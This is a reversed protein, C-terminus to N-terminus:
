LMFPSNSEGEIGAAIYDIKMRIRFTADFEICPLLLM